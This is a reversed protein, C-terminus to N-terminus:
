RYHQWLPHCQPAEGCSSQKSKLPSIPVPSEPQALLFGAQFTSTGTNPLLASTCGHAAALLM